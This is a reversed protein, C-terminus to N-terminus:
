QIKKFYVGSDNRNINHISLCNNSKIIEVCHFSAWNKPVPPFVLTFNVTDGYNKLFHRAPFYPINKVGLLELRDGTTSNILFTTKAINIWWNSTYRDSTRYLCHIRTLLHTFQDADVTEFDPNNIEYLKKICTDEM